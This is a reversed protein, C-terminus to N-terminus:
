SQEAVSDSEVSGGYFVKGGDIYLVSDIICTQHQHRRCFNKVPDPSNQQAAAVVLATIFLLPHMTSGPPLGSAPVCDSVVLADLQEQYKTATHQAILRHAEPLPVRVATSPELTPARATSGGAKTLSTRAQPRELRRAPEHPGSRLV